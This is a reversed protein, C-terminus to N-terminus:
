LLKVGFTEGLERKVQNRRRVSLNLHDFAFTFNMDDPLRRSSIGLARGHAHHAKLATWEKDLEEPPSVLVEIVKRAEESMSNFARESDRRHMVIQEPTSADNSLIEYLSFGDGEEDALRHEEVSQCHQRYAIQSEAWKNFQHWIARVLYTTFAYGKSPDFKESAVCFTMSMQQFVDEYDISVGNGMLRKYGKMAERGILLKYDNFNHQAM